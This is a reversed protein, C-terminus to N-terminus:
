SNHLILAPLVSAVDSDSRGQQAAQRLQSLFADMVPSPLTARRLEGAVVSIGQIHTAVTAQDGDYSDEAVRKGIDAVGEELVDTMLPILDTLSRLPVQHSDLLSAAEFYAALAGFYFCWVGQYIVSATAGEGVFTTGGGLLTLVREHQAYVVKDGSYFLVTDPLGIARPYGVIGGDLYQGDASEVLQRQRESEDTSSTGVHAVTRGALADTEVLQEVLADAATTDAVCMLTLPSAMVAASPSTAVSAVDAFPRTRAESRNWVTVTCGKGMLTHALQEGMAGLGIVSVDTQEQQSM